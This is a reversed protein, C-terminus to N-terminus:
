RSSQLRSLVARSVVASYEDLDSFFLEPELTATQHLVTGTAAIMCVPAGLALAMGLEFYCSPRELSLDAVVLSANTLHTRTADLSFNHQRELPFFFDRGTDRSVRTLLERKRQYQPDSGVPMIFYIYTV